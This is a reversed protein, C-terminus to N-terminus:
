DERVEAPSLKGGLLRECDLDTADGLELFPLPDLGGISISPDKFSGSLAVPAAMDILSFDKPRAEVQLDMTESKMNVIGQALLTSDSTDIIARKTTMKGASADLDIRGCRIAVRADEGVALVLAEAIDLGIAEVMLGSITGDRMGIWGQGSASAMMQDLNRGEGLLYLHGSFRGGMEQVFASGKFFPKLDLADFSLDADASPLEGRANLAMEGSVTGGAVAFRLPKIEVRGDTLRLRTSMRNIPLGPAIIEEGEFTVDMDMARLRERAVDTQPFFSDAGAKQADEAGSEGDTTAVGTSGGGIFGALDAFDLRTSVLDAKLFPQEKTEDLIVQGSLDSEGVNGKLNAVQWLEGERKLSGVLRYPRTSPLPVGLLPFLEALSPGQMSIELDLDRMQLPESMTGAIRLDTDAFQVSLDVPYPQESDRLAAFSGGEFALSLPRDELRGKVALEVRDEGEAEGMATAIEGDLSLGRVADHYRVRGGEILLRGIEPFEDRTEPAVVEGAADGLSEGFDWNARGDAHREFDLVPAVARAELVELRGLLLPWTRLAVHLEDITALEDRAAWEPNALRLDQLHITTTAGLDVDLSGITADRQLADSVASEVHPKLADWDLVILAAVGLGAVLLIALLLGGLSWAAIRAPTAPM